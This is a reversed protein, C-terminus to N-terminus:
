WMDDHGVCVNDVVVVKGPGPKDGGGELLQQGGAGDACSM